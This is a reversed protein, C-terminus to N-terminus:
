TLFVDCAAAQAGHKAYVPPGGCWCPTWHNTVADCLVFQNTVTDYANLCNSYVANGWGYGTCFRDCASVGDTPSPSSTLARQTPSAQSLPKLSSGSLRMSASVLAGRRSPHDPAEGKAPHM